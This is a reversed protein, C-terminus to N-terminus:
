PLVGREKVTIKGAEVAFINYPAVSPEGTTNLDVPGSAGDYDVDKGAKVDALLAAFDTAKYATGGKSMDILKAAVLDGKLQGAAQISLAMLYTADYFNAAFSTEEPANGFKAKFRDVFGSYNTASNGPGTGFHTVNTFSGGSAGVATVFDNEASSDTLMWTLGAPYSALNKQYDAIVVASQASYLPLLVANLGSNAAFLADLETKYSTKGAAFSVTAVVHNATNLAEFAKKFETAIGESYAKGDGEDTIMAVKRLMKENAKKALVAAQATDPACTRFFMGQDEATTLAPSTASGSMQLIKAPGTVALVELSGGSFSPGMIAQIGADVMEQAIAKANARTTADDRATFELQKGLIGGAANIEDVALRVGQTREGGLAGYGGTTSILVGFKLTEQKPGCGVVLMGLVVAGVLRPNVSSRVKPSSPYM